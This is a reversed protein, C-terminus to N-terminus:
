YERRRLGSLSWTSPRRRIDAPNWCRPLRAEGKVRLVLLKEEDGAVVRRIDVLLFYGQVAPPIEEGGTVTPPNPTGGVATAPQRSGQSEKLGEMPEAAQATAVRDASGHFNLMRPRTEQSKQARRAKVQVM